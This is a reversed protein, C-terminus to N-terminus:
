TYLIKNIWVMKLGHWFSEIHSIKLRAEEYQGIVINEKLKDPKGSWLFSYFNNQIENIIKDSPNPL